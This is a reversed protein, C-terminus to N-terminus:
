TICLAKQDNNGKHSASVGIILMVILLSGLLIEETVSSPRRPVGGTQSSVNVTGDARERHGRGSQQDAGAKDGGGSHQSAGTEDRQFFDGGNILLLFVVLRLELDLEKRGNRSDINQRLEAPVGPIVSGDKKLRGTGKVVKRNSYEIAINKHNLTFSIFLSM